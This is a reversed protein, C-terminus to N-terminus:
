QLIKKKLLKKILQKIKGLYKFKQSNEHIKLKPSNQLIIVNKSNKNSTKIDKSIL